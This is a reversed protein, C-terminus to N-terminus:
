IDIPTMEIQPKTMLTTTVPTTTEAQETTTQIIGAPETTTQIIGAPETTTQVVGAQETTTQVVGAPTTATQIIGAPTTATPPKTAMIKLPVGVTQNANQRNVTFAQPHVARQPRWFFILQQCKKGLEPLSVVTAFPTFLLPWTSFARIDVYFSYGASKSLGASYATYMFIWTFQLIIYLVSIPFLQLAMKQYNRWEVQRRVRYRQHLVRVFLAACCIVIIFTPMMYHGISDFLALWTFRSLCSYHGCANSNYNPPVSCPIIFLTTTYFCLPWLICLALPTYHFLLRKRKTGFWKAHFVIIHREFAAWAMLLYIIVFLCANLLAYVYCFAPTQSPIVGNQIFYMYWVCITFQTILGFCLLLIIVHNNLAKRLARDKLLHYLNFIAVLASPIMPGFLIWEYEYTPITM